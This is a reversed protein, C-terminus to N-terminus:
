SSKFLENCDALTLLTASSFLSLTEVAGSRAFSAFRSTSSYGHCTEELDISENRNKVVAPNESYATSRYCFAEFWFGPRM